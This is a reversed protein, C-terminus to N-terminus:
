ESQTPTTEEFTDKTLHQAEADQEVDESTKIQQHKEETATHVSSHQRSTHSTDSKLSELPNKAVNTDTTFTQALPIQSDKSFQIMQEADEPNSEENQGTTNDDLYNVELARCQQADRLYKELGKSVKDHLTETEEPLTGEESRLSALTPYLSGQPIGPIIKQYTDKQQSSHTDM